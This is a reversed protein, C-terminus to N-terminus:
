EAMVGTAQNFYLAYARKLQWKEPHDKDMPVAGFNTVGMLEDAQIAFAQVEIGQVSGYYAEDEVFSRLQISDFLPQTETVGVAADTQSTSLLSKEYAFLYSHTHDGNDTKDLLVWHRDYQFTDMLYWDPRYLNREAEETLTDPITESGATMPDGCLFGFPEMWETGAVREGGTFSFPNKPLNDAGVPEAEIVPVTVKMFVFAENDGVNTIKPNKPVLSHPVVMRSSPDEPYDPETLIIEVNGAEFINDTNKKDTLYAWTLGVAAAICVCAAAAAIVAKKKTIKM